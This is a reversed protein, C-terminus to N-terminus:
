EECIKKTKECGINQNRHLRAYHTAGDCPYEIYTEIYCNKNTIMQYTGIVLSFILIIFVIVSMGMLIDMIKDNM